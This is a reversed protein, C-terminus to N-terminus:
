RVKDTRKRTGKWQKAQQLSAKYLQDASIGKGNKSVFSESKLKAASLMFEAPVLVGRRSIRGFIYLKITVMLNLKQLVSKIMQYSLHLPMNNRINQRNMQLFYKILILRLPIPAYHINIGLMYGRSKRLVFVLPSRDWIDLENKGKADYRFFVLNGPIFSSADFPKLQTTLLLKFAKAAELSDKETVKIGKVEKAVDELKPVKLNRVSIDEPKANNSDKAENVGRPDVYSSVFGTKSSDKIVTNNDVGAGASDLKQIAM